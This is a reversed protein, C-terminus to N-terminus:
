QTVAFGLSEATEVIQEWTPQEVEIDAVKRRHHERQEREYPFLVERGDDIPSSGTVYDLMNDIAESVHTHDSKM